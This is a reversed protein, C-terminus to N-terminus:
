LLQVPAHLSLLPFDCRADLLGHRRPRGGHHPRVHRAGHTPLGGGGLKAPPRALPAEWRAGRESNRSRARTAVRGEGGRPGDASM